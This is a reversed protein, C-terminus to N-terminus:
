KGTRNPVADCVNGMITLGKDIALRWSKDCVTCQPRKREHERDYDTEYANHIRGVRRGCFTKDAYLLDVSNPKSVLWTLHYANM